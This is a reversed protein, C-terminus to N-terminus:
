ATRWAKVSFEGALSVGARKTPMQIVLTQCFPLDKKKREKEKGKSIGM